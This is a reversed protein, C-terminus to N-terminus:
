LLHVVRSDTIYLYATFFRSDTWLTNWHTPRPILDCLGDTFCVVTQSQKWRWSVLSSIRMSLHMPRTNWKTEVSLLLKDVTLYHLGICCDVQVQMNPLCYAMHM